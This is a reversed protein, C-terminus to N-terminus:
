AYKGEADDEPTENYNEQELEELRDPDIFALFQDKRLLDQLGNM